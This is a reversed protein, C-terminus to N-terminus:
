SKSQVEFKPPAIPTHNDLTTVDGDCAPQQEAVADAEKEPAVPTHGDVPLIPTHNDATAATGIDELDEFEKVASQTTESM